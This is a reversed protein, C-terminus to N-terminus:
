SRFFNFLALAIVLADFGLALWALLFFPGKASTEKRRRAGREQLLLALAVPSGLVLLVVGVLGFPMARPVVLLAPVGSAAIAFAALPRSSAPRNLVKSCAGCYLDEDRIM